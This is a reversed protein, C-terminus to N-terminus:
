QQLFFWQSGKEKRHESSDNVLVSLMNPKLGVFKKIAVGAAEEKMKGFM